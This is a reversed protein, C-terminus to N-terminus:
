VLGLTQAENIAATRSQVDLKKYLRRLRAKVATESIGLEFAIQKNPLGRKLHVLVEYEGAALLRPKEGANRPYVMDYFEKQIFRNGHSMVRVARMFEDMDIASRHLMSCGAALLQDKYMIQPCGSNFCCAVSSALGQALTQTIRELDSDEFATTMCIIVICIDDGTDGQIDTQYDSLRNYRRVPLIGPDHDLHDRVADVFLMDKSVFDIAIKQPSKRSRTDQSGSDLHDSM